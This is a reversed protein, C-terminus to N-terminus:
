AFTLAVAMEADVSGFAPQLRVEVGVDDVDFIEPLFPFFTFREAFLADVHGRLGAAVAAAVQVDHGTEDFRNLIVGGSADQRTGFFTKAGVGDDKGGFTGSAGSLGDVHLAPMKGAIRNVSFESLFPEHSASAASM